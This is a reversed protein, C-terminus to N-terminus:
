TKKIHKDSQWITLGPIIHKVTMLDLCRCRINHWHSHQANVESRMHMSVYFHTIYIFAMIRSINVVMTQTLVQNQNAASHGNIGSLPCWVTFSDTWWKLNIRQSSFCIFIKNVVGLTVNTRGHRMRQVVCPPSHLVCAARLLNCQGESVKYWM